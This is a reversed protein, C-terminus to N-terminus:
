AEQGRARALQARGTRTLITLLAPLACRVASLPDLLGCPLLAASGACSRVSRHSDAPEREGERERGHLVVDDFKVGHLRGRLTAMGRRPWPRRRPRDTTPWHHGLRVFRAGRRLADRTGVASLEHSQTAALRIM